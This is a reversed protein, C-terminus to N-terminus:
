ATSVPRAESGRESEAARVLAALKELAMAAARVEERLAGVCRRVSDMVLEANKRQEGGKIGERHAAIYILLLYLPEHAAIASDPSLIERLERNSVAGGGMATYGTREVLLREIITTDTHIRWGQAVAVSVRFRSVAGALPEETLSASLDHSLLELYGFRRARGGEQIYSTLLWPLRTLQSVAEFGEAPSAHIEELDDALKGLEESHDRLTPLYDTAVSPDHLRSWGSAALGAIEAIRSVVLRHNEAVRLAAAREDSRRQLGDLWFVLVIVFGGVLLNRILDDGFNLWPWDGTAWRHVVLVAAASVVAAAIPVLVKAAIGPQVGRWHTATVEAIILVPDAALSRERCVVTAFDWVWCGPCRVWLGPPM